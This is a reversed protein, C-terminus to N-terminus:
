EGFEKKEFFGGLYHMGSRSKWATLRLRCLLGTPGGQSGPSVFEGIFTLGQADQEIGQVPNPCQRRKACAGEGAKIAEAQLAHTFGCVGLM